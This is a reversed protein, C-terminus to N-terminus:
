TASTRTSWLSASRFESLCAQTQEWLDRNEIALGITLPYMSDGTRPENTGGAARLANPRRRQGAAGAGPIIQVGSGDGRPPRGRSRSDQVLQEVPSPTPASAGAGARDQGNRAAGARAATAM